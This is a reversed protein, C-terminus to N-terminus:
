KKQKVISIKDFFFKKKTKLNKKLNNHKTCMFCFFILFYILIFSHIFLICFDWKQQTKKTQTKHDNYKNQKKKRTDKKSHEHFKNKINKKNRQDNKKKKVVM